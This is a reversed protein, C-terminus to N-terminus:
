RLYADHMIINKVLKESALEVPSCPLALRNQRALNPVFPLPGVFPASVRAAVRAAANWPHAGLHPASRLKARIRSKATPVAVTKM